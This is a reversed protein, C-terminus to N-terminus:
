PQKLLVIMKLAFDFFIIKANVNGEVHTQAKAMEEMIGMVNRENVFPSFRASFQEEETTMYNMEARHFNYIFNERLMHQCYELFHKQRERGMAAVEESWTKMDRIKRAYSSRMLRMFLQLFEDTEKNTSLQEMAKLMNGNSLHAIRNSDAEGIGYKERLAAAIESDKLRPVDIRQTRSTITALLREPHESVLIFVTQLPPEELLKLIKNACVENMREPMWILCIKYCGPAARLSAKRLLVAAEREYITLQANESNLEQQWDSFSVYSGGKLLNRWNGIYESCEPTKGAPTGKKKCIPYVFHIDPQQLSEWQKCSPCNGCADNSRHKCTLYHAYAIALPLKGSGEPGALLIAHAIRGEAVDEMLKQKIAEQGIVDKFTYM